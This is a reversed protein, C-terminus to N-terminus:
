PTNYSGIPPEYLPEDPTPTLSPIIFFGVIISIGVLAGIVIGVIKLKNGNNM